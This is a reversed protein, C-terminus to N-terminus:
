VAKGRAMRDAAAAATEDALMAIFGMERMYGFAKESVDTLARCAARCNAYDFSVYRLCKRVAAPKKDFMTGLLEYIQGPALPKDSLLVAETAAAYLYVGSCTGNEATGALLRLLWGEALLRRVEEDLAPDTYTKQPGEGTDIVFRNM